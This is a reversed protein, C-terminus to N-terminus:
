KKLTNMKARLAAPLSGGSPKSPAIPMVEAPIEEDIPPAQDVAEEPATDEEENVGPTSALPVSPAVSPVLKRAAPPVSPGVARRVPTAAAPQVVQQVPRAVAGAPRSTRIVPAEEQEQEQEVPSLEPNSDDVVEEVQPAPRRFTRVPAPAPAPTEEQVFADEPDVTHTGAFSRQSTRQVAPRSQGGDRAMTYGEKIVPGIAELNGEAIMNGISILRDDDFYDFKPQRVAKWLKALDPSNQADDKTAIGDFIPSPMEVDFSTKGDLAKTVWVDSGNILDLLGMQNKPSRSRALKASLLAFATKGINFEFPVIDDCAIVDGNKDSEARKLVYMRYSVQSTLKFLNTRETKDSSQDLMSQIAACLPCAYEPDGGFAESTHEKCMIPARGKGTWHQAFKIYPTKQPGFPIPLFRILWAAGKEIDVRNIKTSTASAFKQESQLDALSATEYALKNTM